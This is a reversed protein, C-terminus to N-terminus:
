PSLVLRGGSVEVRGLRGLFSMGLLNGALAADPLVLAEVAAIRIAGVEVADLTAPAAMVRGNATTVPVVYDTPAPRIGLKAADGARLAVTTAGTDALFGLRVGGVRADLRFHGSADAPVVVDGLRTGGSPRPAAAAVADPEPAPTAFRDALARIEPVAATLLLAAFATSFLLKSM